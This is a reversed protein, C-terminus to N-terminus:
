TSYETDVISDISNRRNSTIDNLKVISVKKVIEEPPNFIKDLLGKRDSNLKQM